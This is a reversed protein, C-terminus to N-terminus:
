QAARSVEFLNEGEAECTILRYKQVIKLIEIAIDIAIKL